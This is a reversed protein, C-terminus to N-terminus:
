VLNHSIQCSITTLYPPFQITFEFFGRQKTGGVFAAFHVSLGGAYFTSGGLIYCFNFFLRKIQPPAGAFAVRPGHISHRM